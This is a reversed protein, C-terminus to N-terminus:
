KPLMLLRSQSFNEATKPVVDNFLEFVIRGINSGDIQIDFYVRPRPGAGATLAYPDSSAAPAAPANVNQPVGESEAM